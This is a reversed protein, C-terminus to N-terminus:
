QTIKDEWKGYRQFSKNCYWSRMRWVCQWDAPRTQNAYSQAKWSCAAAVFRVSKDLRHTETLVSLLTNGPLHLCSCTKLEPDEERLVIDGGLEVILNWIDPWIYIIVNNIEWYSVLEILRGQIPGWAVLVAFPCLHLICPLCLFDYVSLQDLNHWSLVFGSLPLFLILLTAYWSFVLCSLCISWM